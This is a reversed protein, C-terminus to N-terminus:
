FVNSYVSAYTHTPTHPPTPTHTHTHTDPQINTTKVYKSNKLGVAEDRYVKHCPCTLFVRQWKQWNHATLNLKQPVNM